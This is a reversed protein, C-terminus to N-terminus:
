PGFPGRRPDVNNGTAGTDYDYSNRDRSDIRDGFDNTTAYCEPFWLGSVDDQVRRGRWRSGVGGRNGRYVLEGNRENRGAM